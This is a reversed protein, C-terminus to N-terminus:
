DRKIEYIEIDFKNPLLELIKKMTIKSSIVDLHSDKNIDKIDDGVLICGRTDKYTNGPHILIYKRNVVNTVHIHNKYKKSWRKKGVYTGEPIRSINNANGLDPLELCYCSFLVNKENECVYLRGLTQKSDNSYREIIIKM